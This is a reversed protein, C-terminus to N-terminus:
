MGNSHPPHVDHRGPGLAAAYSDLHRLAVARWSFRERVMANGRRGMALRQREDALMTRLAAAFAEASNHDVLLGNDGDIVIEPTGGSRTAIVPRECAMSELFVLGLGEPLRSPMAFFLAGKFLSWLEARPRTGLTEVRATIGADAAVAAIQERDPGDGAILLDVNPYDPAIIAFAAILVDIARHRLDQRAACFIYGRERQWPVAASAAALDVGGLVVQARRALRSLAVFQAKTAASITTVAVAYKLSRLASRGLKGQGWTDYLSQVLPVHTRRCAIAVSMFKDWTWVHSNIVEPRFRHIEAILDTAIPQRWLRELHRLTVAKHGPIEVLACEASTSPTREAGPRVYPTSVIAVQHGLSILEQSLRDVTEQIGGIARFDEAILMIRM